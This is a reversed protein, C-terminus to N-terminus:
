NDQSNRQIQQVTGRQSRFGFQQPIIVKNVEEVEILRDLLLKELVKGLCSLLSIPRYSTPDSSDKGPKLIPIVKALKWAIPFYSQEFCSNFVRSLFVIVLKPLNKLCRNSVNDPGSAKRIKCTELIKSIEIPTCFKQNNCAGETCGRNEHSPCQHVKESSSATQWSANRKKSQLLGRQIKNMSHEVEKEHKSSISAPILHSKHFSTAIVEAKLRDTFVLNGLHDKIPPIVQGKKKLARTFGFLSGDGVELQAVRDDFSKQRLIFTNDRILKNMRSILSKYVPLLSRKYLNRLRNREKIMMALETSYQYRFRFPNRKPISENEATLIARTVEDIANDISQISNISSFKQILESSSCELLSRFKKWNAKKYNFMKVPSPIVNNYPVLFSIPLHDSSLDNITIPDSIGPMSKSIVFDIASPSGNPPIVTPGDPGHIHFMKSICLNLLDCGKRCSHSNNWAINKCNFDGAVIHPGSTSLVKLFFDLAQKRSAAPSCYVGSVLFYQGGDLVKITVAEAYSLTIKQLFSHPVNKKILIAVGGYPRDARYCDYGPLYFNSLPKLWTESIIVIHHDNSNLFHSIESIKSLISHSNWALVKLAM